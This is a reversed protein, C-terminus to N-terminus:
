LIKFIAYLMQNGSQSIIDFIAPWKIDNISEDYFYNDERLKKLVETASWFDKPPLADKIADAYSTILQDTQLGLNGKKM